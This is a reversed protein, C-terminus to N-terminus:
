LNKEIFDAIEDFTYEEEDNLEILKTTVRTDILLSPLGQNKYKKLTNDTFSFTNFQGKDGGISYNSLGCVVGAVGLCCYGKELSNYLVERSQKYEGSRLAKVWKRKFVKPLKEDKM